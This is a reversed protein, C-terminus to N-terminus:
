PNKDQQVLLIIVSISWHLLQNGDESVKYELQLSFVYSSVM